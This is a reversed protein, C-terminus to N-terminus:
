FLYFGIALGIVFAILAGMTLTSWPYKIVEKTLIVPEAKEVPGYKFLHDLRLVENATGLDKELIRWYTSKKDGEEFAEKSVRHAAIKTQAWDVVLPDVVMEQLKMPKRRKETRSRKETWPIRSPL